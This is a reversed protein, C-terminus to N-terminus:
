ARAAMGTGIDQVLKCVLEWSARHYPGPVDLPQGAAARAAPGAKDVYTPNAVGGGHVLVDRTAKVEAFQQVEAPSPVGVAVRSNLYKFWDAPRGYLLGVLEKDILADVIAAKDPLALIQEGKLERGSVAAPHARLWLRLVDLLYNEFIAVFQQLTAAALENDVYRQARVLFEAETVSSGTAPNQLTFRYGDQQVTFHLALWSQETYAFYNHADALLRLARDRAARIEDALAM